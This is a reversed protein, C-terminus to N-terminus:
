QQFINIEGGWSDDPAEALYKETQNLLIRSPTDVYETWLKNFRSYALIFDRKYFARLGEAYEEIMDNLSTALPGADIDGLLEYIELPRSTGKEMIRGLERIYFLHGIGTLTRRSVIISTRSYRCINALRSAQDVPDGLVMFDSRLPTEIAGQIISNTDIGIPVNFVPNNPYGLRDLPPRCTRRKIELATQCALLSHNEDEMPAGFVASIEDLTYKDLMGK